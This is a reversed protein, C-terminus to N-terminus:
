LDGSSLSSLSAACAAHLAPQWPMFTDLDNHCPNRGLYPLAKLLQLLYTYPNLGVAHATEVLTYVIASSQAGKTTDSFLWNKRGVVFPRIANEAFNNSIDVEGHELFASLYPKQNQAYTVAEALKSGPVPDLTKLWLWYAELLPEAKVQRAAKRVDDSMGSFKKELAFLKNCYEYGIAAKSTATTAGKPMAGRCKRRMHAWCGCRVAGTVQNYGAYGDTVLCGTFGKLFAAAHKGSRDPQYAFFRIPRGGREGSGYVWMRSESSAPKGDEKLVQVVTEDAYIVRNDLLHKKLRRYLPKLWTQATQIVWNAMTARSLAVGERAWIKEQRYLPLGDVYKRVMIDAVTSPSALSHKLLRPPAEVSYLNAYGSEKECNECAYTATYYEVVNVQRPIVELERRVFKKGIPKLKHGCSECFQENESLGLVVERVPLGETLEDITRKPKRKRQDEKVTLTEETPEPAKHDQEAEAENFMGLQNPMVYDRKESSQGFRARQANLLLENMRELKRRLEENEQKLAANEERLQSFVATDVQSSFDKKGM